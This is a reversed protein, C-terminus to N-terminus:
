LWKIQRVLLNNYTFVIYIISIFEIRVQDYIKYTHINSTNEISVFNIDIKLDTQHIYVEYETLTIEEEDQLSYKFVM